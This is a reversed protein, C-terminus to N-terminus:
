QQVKINRLYELYKVDPKYEVVEALGSAVLQANFLKEDRESQIDEQPVELWIYRLLRGYRDTDSIDKELYIWQNLLAKKTFETAEEYMPEGKEPTNVGIFRIKQKEGDIEAWITDGDVVSTVFVKQYQDLKVEVSSTENEGLFERVPHSMRLSMILVIVVLSILTFGNSRSRKM